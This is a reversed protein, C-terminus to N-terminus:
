DPLMALAQRAADALSLDSTALSLLLSRDSPDGIRGIANIATIRALTHEASDAAVRALDPRLVTLKRDGAIRAATMREDAPRSGAPGGLLPRALPAIESDSLARAVPQGPNAATDGLLHLSLLAATAVSKDASALRRLSERISDRLTEDGASDNWVIRLHQLAYDRLTPDRAPDGAVTALARALRGHSEPQRHLLNAAENFWTSGSGAAESPPNAALLAAVLLDIEPDTLGGGTGRLIETRRLSPADKELALAEALAPRVATKYRQYLVKPDPYNTVTELPKLRSEPRVGLRTAAMWVAAVLLLGLGAWVLRGHLFSPLMTKSKM